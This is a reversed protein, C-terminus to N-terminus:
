LVIVPEDGQLMSQLSSLPPLQAELESWVAEVSDSADLTILTGILGKNEQSQVWEIIPKTMKEYVALRKKVIEPKDDERMVLADGTVDDFGKKKPPNNDVHYVRGSAAHVRRGSMRKVIEAHDVDLQIAVDVFVDSMRKAQGMTRPFGDLIYGRQYKEKKVEAWILDSIQQDSVLKGQQMTAKISMALKSKSKVVDALLQSATLVPIGYHASLKNAITGKGAGPPGFIMVRFPETQANAPLVSVWMGLCVMCVGVFWRGIERM